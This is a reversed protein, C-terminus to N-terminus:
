ARDGRMARVKEELAAATAQEPAIPAAALLEIEARFRRPLRARRLQSDMRSWMSGWLGRVALPIVPVPNAALIKEIGAKFPQISGDPTLRGEPFLGIIEGDNLAQDIEAYARELMAPDEKAPAIPIARATRFLFNMGPIKFVRHDMVFRLPRRVSGGVILADVFSVHNCIVIAPGEEPINELGSVRIRYLVRIMMWAIFRMLFEPVLGYIFVAVGANLIAAALFLQPINLGLKLLAIALLASAVMFAANLINNGAIIRSRHSAASRTQILAYLPVIFLGGAVGILLLDALVRISGAQALWAAAGLGTTVAEGPAAFYLDIGFLSLGISGLPVLGIEVRHGSLRECLLSGLGIGLSFVTLLCTVVQENGGLNLKTWNPLQALFTAGYFWFWSIGLVSLFVTRNSRLFAINRWTESFANWNIKLDPAAAPATPIARATLYGLVAIAVIVVSVGPVGYSRAILWGGLMTGLLIALFTAAEVWANGSILEAPHLAQPLISYKVPGFLASQAGMLFLVGLLFPVQGLYLGVVGLGMIGIEVFKIIRILQSKEYKEALQGATASFLFFPLIFLGAALNVYLNIQDQSLGAIGFSVLIVLANKFVNDNFAGLTQTWFFPGFRRTGLLNERPADHM